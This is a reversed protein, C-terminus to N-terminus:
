RVERARGGFGQVGEGLRRLVSLTFDHRGLEIRPGEPRAFFGEHWSHFVGEKDLSALWPKFSLV